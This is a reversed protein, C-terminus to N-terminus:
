SRANTYSNCPSQQPQIQQFAVLPSPQDFSVSSALPLPLSFSPITNNFVKEQVIPFTNGISNSGFIYVTGTNTVLASHFPGAAVVVM